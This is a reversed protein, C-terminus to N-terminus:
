LESNRNVLLLLPCFASHFPQIHPEAQMAVAILWHIRSLNTKSAELLSRIKHVIGNEKQFFLLWLLLVVCYCLSFFPILFWKMLVIQIKTDVGSGLLVVLLLWTALLLNFIRFDVWNCSIAKWSRHAPLPNAWFVIKSRSLKEMSLSISTESIENFIMGFWPQKWIYRSSWFTSSKWDDWSNTTLMVVLNCYAVKAWYHSHM